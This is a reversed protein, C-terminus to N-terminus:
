IIDEVIISSFLEEVGNIRRLKEAFSSLEKIHKFRTKIILDFNAGQVDFIEYVENKKNIEEIIKSKPVYGTVPNTEAINIFYFAAVHRETKEYNIIAKYGKIVNTQELKKIRRHVTSVPLGIKKSIDQSSLKSNKEIIKLIMEDKKDM